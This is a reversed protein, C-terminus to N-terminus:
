KKSVNKLFWFKIDQMMNSRWYILYKFYFVPCFVLFYLVLGINFV